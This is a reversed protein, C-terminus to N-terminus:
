FCWAEDCGSSYVMHGLAAGESWGAVIISNEEQDGARRSDAGIKRGICLQLAFAKSRPGKGFAGGIRLTQDIGHLRDLAVLAPQRPTYQLCSLKM